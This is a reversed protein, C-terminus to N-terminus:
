KKEAGDNAVLKQHEYIEFLKNASHILFAMGASLLISQITLLKTPTVLQGFLLTWFFSFGILGFGRLLSVFRAKMDGSIKIGFHVVLAVACISLLVGVGNFVVFVMSNVESSM